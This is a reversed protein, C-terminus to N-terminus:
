NASRAATSRCAGFARDRRPLPVGRDAREIQPRYFTRSVSGLGGHHAADRPDASLSRGVYTPGSSFKELAIWDDWASDLSKGFRASSARM